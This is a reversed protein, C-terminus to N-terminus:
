SMNRRAFETQMQVAIPSAIAAAASEHTDFKIFAGGTKSTQMTVYGPLVAFEQRLTEESIGKSAYSFIALTNVSPDPAGQSAIPGGFSSGPGDLNRRAMEAGVQLAVPSDMAQEAYLPSEFKVFAGGIRSMQFTVFGPLTQFAAHLDHEQIGKDALALVAITDITGGRQFDRRPRKAVGGQMLGANAGGMGGGAYAPVAPSPAAMGMSGGGGAMGAMAAQDGEFCATMPYAAAEPDFPQGNLTDIAAQAHM